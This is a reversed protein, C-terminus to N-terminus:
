VNKEGPEKDIEKIDPHYALDGWYSRGDIRIERCGIGLMVKRLRKYFTQNKNVGLEHAVTDAVIGRRIKAKPTIQFNSLVISELKKNELFLTLIAQASTYDM